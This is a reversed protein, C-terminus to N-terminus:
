KNLLSEIFAQNDKSMWDVSGSVFAVLEGDKNFIYSTPINEVQFSKATFMNNDIFYDLASLKYNRYFSRIKSVDEGQAVIPVIALNSHKQQLANLSPMEVMCPTCWTAWFNLIVVKGQFNGLTKLSGNKDEFLSSPARFPEPYLSFDDQAYTKGLFMTLFLSILLLKKM